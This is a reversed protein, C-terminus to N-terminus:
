HRLSNLVNTPTIKVRHMQTANFTNLPSIRYTLKKQVAHPPLVTLLLHEDITKKEFKRRQNFKNLKNEM